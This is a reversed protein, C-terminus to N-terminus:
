RHVVGWGDNHPSQEGGTFSTDTTAVPSSQDGHVIMAVKRRADAADVTAPLAQLLVRRVVTVAKATPLTKRIARKERASLSLSM